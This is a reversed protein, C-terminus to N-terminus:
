LVYKFQNFTTIIVCAYCLDNRLFILTSFNIRISIINTYTILLLLYFGAMSSNKWWITMYLFFIQVCYKCHFSIQVNNEV